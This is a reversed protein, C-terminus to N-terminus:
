WARTRWCVPASQCFTFRTSEVARGVAPITGGALQVTGAGNAATVTGSDTVASRIKKANAAPDDLLFLCGAGPRSKSMMKEPDQLDRIKATAPVIYPEPVRFTEGFRGNFRGALDRTM